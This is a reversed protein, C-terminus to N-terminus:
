GYHYVDWVVQSRARNAAEILPMVPSWDYRGPGEAEVLHWRM